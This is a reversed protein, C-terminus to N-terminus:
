CIDKGIPLNNVCSIGYGYDINESQHHLLSKLTGQVAIIDFRM